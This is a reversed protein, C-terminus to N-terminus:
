NCKDIYMATTTSKFVLIKSGRNHIGDKDLMIQILNTRIM